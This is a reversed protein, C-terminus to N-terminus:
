PARQLNISTLQNVSEIGSLELHDGNVQFRGSFQFKPHVTRLQNREVDYSTWLDTVRGNLDRVHLYSGEEFYMRDFGLTAPEIRSGTQEVADLVIWTGYVPSFWDSHYRTRYLDVGHYALFALAILSALLTRRRSAPEADYDWLLALVRPGHAVILYVSMMTFVISNWGIPVGYEFNVFTINVMISFTAIAGVLATRRAIMLCGAIVEFAGLFLGYVRSHSFFIWARDFPQLHEALVDNWYLKPTFQIPIIKVLGYKLMTFALFYRLVIQIASAWANQQQEPRRGIWVAFGCACLLIILYIVVAATSFPSYYPTVVSQVEVSWFFAAIGCLAFGSALFALFLPVRLREGWMGKRMRMM